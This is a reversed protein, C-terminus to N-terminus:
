SRARSARPPAGRAVFCRDVFACDRGLCNDVTSTVQRACRTIRPSTRSSRLTAPTARRGGRLRASPAGRDDDRRAHRRAVGRRAPALVLYNSRGKLVAVECRGASSPASCRCTAPSCSIRCRTRAPRSSRAADRAAARAASVRLDQRHRHRGRHRRAPGVRAGRRRAGGNAAARGSLHLGALARRARRRRRVRRRSEVRCRGFGRSGQPARMSRRACSGAFTPTTPPTPRARAGGDAAPLTLEDPMGFTRGNDVSFLVESGPGSASDPVYQVDAPIPSTIRVTDVVSESTNTFRVSVILQDAHSAVTDATIRVEAAAAKPRRPSSESSRRPCSWSTAARPGSAAGARALTATCCSATAVAGAHRALRAALRSASTPRRAAREAALGTSMISTKRLAAPQWWEGTEAATAAISARKWERSAGLELWDM